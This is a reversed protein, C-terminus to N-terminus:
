DGYRITISEMTAYERTTYENPKIDYEYYPQLTDLKWGLSVSSAYPIDLDIQLIAEPEFDHGMLCREQINKMVKEKIDNDTMQNYSNKNRSITILIDIYLLERVPLEWAFTWQLGNKLNIAQTETGIFINGVSMSDNILNAVTIKDYHIGDKPDVCLFMNGAGKRILSLQNLVTNAGNADFTGGDIVANMAESITDYASTPDVVQKTSLYYGNRDFYDIIGDNTTIPRTIKDNVVKLYREYYDLIVSINNQTLLMYQIIPYSIRYFDTMKFTDVVYNENFVENVKDILNQLETDFTNPIFGKELSFM